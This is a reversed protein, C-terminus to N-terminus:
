MVTILCLESLKKDKVLLIEYISEKYLRLLKSLYTLKRVQDILLKLPLYDLVYQCYQVVKTALSKLANMFTLSYAYEISNLM